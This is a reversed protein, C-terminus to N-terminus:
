ELMSKIGLHKILRIIVGSGWGKLGGQEPISGNVGETGVRVDDLITLGHCHGRKRQLITLNSVIGDRKLTKLGEELLLPQQEQLAETASWPPAFNITVSSLQHHYHAYYACFFHFLALISSPLLSTCCSRQITICSKAQLNHTTRYGM